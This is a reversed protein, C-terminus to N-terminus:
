VMIWIVWRMFGTQETANGFIEFGFLKGSGFLEKFFSVIVLVM